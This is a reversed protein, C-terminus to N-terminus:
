ILITMTDWASIVVKSITSLEEEKGALLTALKINVTLLLTMKLYFWNFTFDM